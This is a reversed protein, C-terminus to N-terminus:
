AKRGEEIIKALEADPDVPDGKAIEMVATWVGTQYDAESQLADAVDPNKALLGVRQVWELVELSDRRLRHLIILLGAMENRYDLPRPEPGHPNKAQRDARFREHSRDLAALAHGGAEPDDAVADAIAPDKILTKAVEIQIERARDSDAAVYCNNEDDWVDGRAQHGAFRVDYGHEGVAALDEERVLGAAELANEDALLKNLAEARQEPTWNGVVSDPTREGERQWAPSQTGLEAAFDRLSVDRAEADALVQAAKGPDGNAKVYEMTLRPPLIIKAELGLDSLKLGTRRRAALNSRSQGLIQEAADYAATVAPKDAEPVSALAVTTGWWAARWATEANTRTQEAAREAAAAREIQNM